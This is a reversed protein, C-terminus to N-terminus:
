TIETVRQYTAFTWIGYPQNIDKVSQTKHNSTVYHNVIQHYIRYLHLTNNELETQGGSLVFSPSLAKMQDWDNSKKM